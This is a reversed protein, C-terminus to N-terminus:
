RMPTYAKGLGLSPVSLHSIDVWLMYDILTRFLDEETISGAEAPSEKSAFSLSDTYLLHDWYHLHVTNILTHTRPASSKPYTPHMRILGM